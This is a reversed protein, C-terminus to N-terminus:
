LQTALKFIFDKRSITDGTEKECILLASFSILDLIKNFVAIAWRSTNRLLLKYANSFYTSPPSLYLETKGVPQTVEISQKFYPTLVHSSGEHIKDSRETNELKANNELQLM